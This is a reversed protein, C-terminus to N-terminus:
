GISHLTDVLNLLDRSGFMILSEDSLDIGSEYDATNIGRSTAFMHIPDVHVPTSGPSSQSMHGASASDIDRTNTNSEALMSVSSDSTGSNQPSSRTQHAFRTLGLMRMHTCLTAFASSSDSLRSSTSEDM